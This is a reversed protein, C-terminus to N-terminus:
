QSISCLYLSFFSDFCIKKYFFALFLVNNLLLSFYASLFENIQPFLQLKAASKCVMFDLKILKLKKILM